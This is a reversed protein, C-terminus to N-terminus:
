AERRARHAAEASAPGRLRDAALLLGLLTALLLLVVSNRLTFDVLGQGVVVALAGAVGAVVARDAPDRQQAVARRAVGLVALTFGVVLAAAPIGLEASTTLLVNHAHKASVTASGSASRTSVIPFQGPGQGLVPSDLTERVGERWISPRDDYPNATVSGFTSARERVVQVEPRDPALAGFLVAGLTLPVSALLLGRRASPLLVLVVAAGVAAGIWAGRSLSLGLGALALLGSVAAGVRPLPRRAGLFLGVSVLLVIASFIGFQNPETFTGRLRNGVVQGGGVSDLASAGRLGLGCVGAGVVALVACVRRVDHMSSLAGVVACTLGLALVLAVDQRLAAELSPAQGSSVFAILVVAAAWRLAPPFALPSRGAALRHVAVLGIVAAATVQSLDAGFPLSVLGVPIVLVVLCPALAIREFVILATLGIVPALVLVAPGLIGAVFGAALGVALASLALLVGKGAATLTAIM